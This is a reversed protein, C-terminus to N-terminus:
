CNLRIKQNVQFIDLIENISFFAYYKGDDIVVFVKNSNSLQEERRWSRLCEINSEKPYSIRRWGMFAYFLTHAFVCLMMHIYASNEANEGGRRPLHGLFTAQKLERFGRNEIYSRLRYTEAIKAPNKEAPLSTLLVTQKDATVAKDRWHTVVVANIATGNTKKNDKTKPPNYPFYSLLGDVGYGKCTKKGYNWEALTKNEYSECVKIADERVTLTSKAPVIFDIGLKYKLEWLEEGSLYGRDAIIVKIAAEGCNKIGQKIVPLFHKIESENAPVIKMAVILRSKIEYLAFLKFGHYVEYSGDDNTRKTTGAGPYDSKTEILTSDIAFVGGRLLYSLNKISKNFVNM